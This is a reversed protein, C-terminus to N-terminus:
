REARAGDTPPRETTQKDSKKRVMSVRSVRLRDLPLHRLGWQGIAMSVREPLRALLSRYLADYLRDLASVMDHDPSM